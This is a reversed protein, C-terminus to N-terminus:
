TSLLPPPQPDRPITPRILPSETSPQTSLSPPQPSRSPFPILPPPSTRAILQFMSAPTSKELINPNVTLIAKLTMRNTAPHDTLYDVTPINKIQINRHNDMWLDHASLINRFASSDEYQFALPVYNTLVNATILLYDMIM